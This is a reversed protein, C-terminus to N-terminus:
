FEKRFAEMINNVMVGCDVNHAYTYKDTATDISFRKGPDFYQRVNRVTFL